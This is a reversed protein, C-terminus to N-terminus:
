QKEEEPEDIVEEPAEAKKGLCTAYIWKGGNVRLKDASIIAENHRDVLETLLKPSIIFELVDGDYALKKVESYWGSTGTGKIRIKGPRLEVVVHNDEEESTFVQAKDCTEKLSKPLIVVDGGEDKFFPSLDRYNELSRRASYVLKGANRFHLWAPTEAFETMGLSLAAKLNDRRVLTPATIGTQLKYRCLQFRDCAEVWKPHIHVCTLMQEGESKNACEQVVGVAEAFEEPLEKWDEKGPVEVGDIPLLVADEMRVGARRGKGIVIVETATRDITVEEEGLKRLIELLPAAKVAGEFSKGFPSKTRCSVEDNYTYINGNTFAFCSSQEIIERNALGPSVLELKNLIEARNVKIPAFAMNAYVKVYKVFWSL